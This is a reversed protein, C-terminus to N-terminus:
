VLGKVGDLMAQKSAVQERAHKVQRVINAYEPGLARRASIGQRMSQSEAEIAAQITRLAETAKHCADCLASPHSSLAAAASRIQTQGRIAQWVADLAAVEAGMEVVRERAITSAEILPSLLRSAACLERDQRLVEIESKLDEVTQCASTYAAIVKKSHQVPEVREGETYALTDGMRDRQSTCFTCLSTYDMAIAEEARQRGNTGTEGSTETEKEGVTQCVAQAALEDRVRRLASTRVRLDHLARKEDALSTDIDSVCGDIRRIVSLLQPRPDLLQPPVMSGFGSAM